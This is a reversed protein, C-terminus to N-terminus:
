MKLSFWIFHMYMINSFKPPIFCQSVPNDLGVPPYFIPLYAAGIALVPPYFYHITQWNKWKLVKRLMTNPEITIM